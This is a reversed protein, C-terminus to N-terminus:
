LNHFKFTFYYIDLIITIIDYVNNELPNAVNKSEDDEKNIQNM